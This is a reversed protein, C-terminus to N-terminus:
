PVNFPIEIVGPWCTLIHNGSISIMGGAMAAVIRHATRSTPSIAVKFSVAAASRGSMNRSNARAIAVGNRARLTFKYLSERSEARVPLFGAM